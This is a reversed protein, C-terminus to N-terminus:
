NRRKNRSNAKMEEMERRMQDAESDTDMSKGERKKGVEDDLQEWQNLKKKQTAQAKPAPAPQPEAAVKEQKKVAPKPIMIVEIGATASLGAQNKVEVTVRTKGPKSFTLSITKENSFPTEWNGDGNKDWRFQPAGPKGTEDTSGGADFLVTKGPETKEPTAKIVAVPPKSAKPAEAEPRAPAPMVPANEKKESCAFALFVLIGIRAFKM